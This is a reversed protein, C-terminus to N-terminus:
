ISVGNMNKENFNLHLGHRKRRPSGEKQSVLQDLRVAADPSGLAAAKQYWERAQDLDPHFSRIGLKKLILPDYTGGLALAAQPDDRQAARRLVLRAAALDGSALYTRARILLSAIEDRDATSLTSSTEETKKELEVLKPSWEARPLPPPVVVHSLAEHVIDSARSQYEENAPDLKNAQKLDSFARELDGQARYARSRMAYVDALGPNARIARNFDSIARGFYGYKFHTNGRAVFNVPDDPDRRIAEDFEAIMRDFCGTFQPIIACLADGAFHSARDELGKGTLDKLLLQWVAVLGVIVWMLCKLARPWKERTQPAFFLFMAAVIGALDTFFEIFHPFLSIPSCQTPRGRGRSTSLGAICNLGCQPPLASTGHGDSIRRV